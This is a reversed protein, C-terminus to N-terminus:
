ATEVSDTLRSVATQTEEESGGPNIVLPRRGSLRISRTRDLSIEEDLRFVKGDVRVREFGAKRIEDFAAQYTSQPRACDRWSWCVAARQCARSSIWMEQASQRM